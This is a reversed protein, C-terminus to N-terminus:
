KANHIIINKAGKYIPEDIFGLEEDSFGTVGKQQHKEFLFVIKEARSITSKDYKFMHNVLEAQRPSICGKATFGMGKELELWEKFGNINKYDQFVFSVPEVGMSKCTILFHSLIYHVTPNTIAILDQSLKLEAFLDLIGLYFTSVRRNPALAKLNLWAEKTEISLHVDIGEDILELARNVDLLTRVKPIRIADPRYSNLHLIENEGGEDLANVRVILSKKGTNKSLADACQSLALSKLEPAVGDELNLIICDASLEDIKKLHKLNHASLMLASRFSNKM